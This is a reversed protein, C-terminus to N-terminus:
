VCTLAHVRASVNYPQLNPQHQLPLIQWSFGDSVLYNGSPTSPVYLEQSPPRQVYQGGHKRIAKSVNLKKENYFLSKQMHTHTPPPTSTLIVKRFHVVKSLM